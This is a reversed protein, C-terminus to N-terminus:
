GAPQWLGFNRTKRRNDQQQPDELIGARLWPLREQLLNAAAAASAQGGEAPDAYNTLIATAGYVDIVLDPLGESFGNFLRFASEHSADFLDARAAICRDLLESIPPEPM